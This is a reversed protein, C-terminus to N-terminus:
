FKELVRFHNELSVELDEFHLKEEVKCGLQRLGDVFLREEKGIWPRLPCRVQHPTVHVHVTAGGVRVFQQLLSEITVWAGCSGSHGADLWYWDTVRKLFSREKEKQVDSFNFPTAPFRKPISSHQAAEPDGHEKVDVGGFLYGMEFVFQNLAVCGKSFGVLVVPLSSLSVSDKGGPIVGSHREELCQLAGTLLVDLTAVGGYSGMYDPVGTLSSPVFQEFASFLNKFMRLPKMIWIAADPFKSGLVEATSELSWSIFKRYESSKDLMM